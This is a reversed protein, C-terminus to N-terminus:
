KYYYYHLILIFINNIKFFLYNITRQKVSFLYVFIGIIIIFYVRFMM